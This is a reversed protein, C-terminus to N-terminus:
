IGELRRREALSQARYIAALIEAVATYLKAPISQGVEVARYLAHALPPNEVMPIGHWRAIRKIEAALLNRGKAVVVPAALTANYELAVAFQNPNTIVVAARKVNELMRRRRTQRQLRRIRMKTAPNGETEKYEDMLEQRSMRLETELRRREVLYDVGSWVLLAASAKWTIEFLRDRFFTGLHGLGWGELGLLTPWDRELISVAFYVIAAVPILSKLLRSVASLSFLQQARAVPSLRSFSPSLSSPALVLGGQAVAVVAALMWALGIAAGIGATVPLIKWPVVSGRFGMEGAAAQM